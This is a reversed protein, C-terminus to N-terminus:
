DIDEYIKRERVSLTFHYSIQKQRELWLQFQKLHALRKRTCKKTKFSMTAWLLLIGASMTIAYGVFAVIFYSLRQNSLEDFQEGRVEIELDWREMQAQYQDLKELESESAFSNYKISYYREAALNYADVAEFYSDLSADYEDQTIFAKYMMLLFLLLGLVMFPIMVYGFIKRKKMKREYIAYDPFSKDYEERLESQKEKPMRSYERENARRRQEGSVDLGCHPCVKATDSIPKGCQPCSILAM